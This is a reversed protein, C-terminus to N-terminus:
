RVLDLGEPNVVLGFAKKWGAPDVGLSLLKHEAEEISGRGLLAVVMEFLLPSLRDDTGRLIAWGAAITQDCEEVQGSQYQAGARAILAKVKDLYTSRGEMVRDAWLHTGAVDGQAASVLAGVSSQYMHEAHAPDVLSLQAAAEDVSGRQLLALALSAVLESGGVV